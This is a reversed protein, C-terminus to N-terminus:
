ATVENQGKDVPYHNGSVVFQALVAMTPPQLSKHQQDVFEVAWFYTAQRKAVDEVVFL